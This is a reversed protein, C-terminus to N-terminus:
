SRVDTLATTRVQFTVPLDSVGQISTSSSFSNNKCNIETDM